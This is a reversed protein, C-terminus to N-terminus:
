FGVFSAVFGLVLVAGFSLGTNSASSPPEAEDAAAMKKKGSKDPAPAPSDSESPASAPATEPALGPPADAYDGEDAPAPAPTAAGKKPSPAPPSSMPPPPPVKVPSGLGPAVIPMSIQVVSLNYPNRFVTTIYEATQPAGKVGSGFYIKGNSKTCNLFGNQQQGLGTSQYLTTLLTSKEKLAKLKLEDFYDLVVHNMLINKVEEEPRGSISGIADNNLALVTITQRKNIIPTLETKALLETMTSFEPYKELVRTINVASVISSVALLITLCLLSSSVKLGM